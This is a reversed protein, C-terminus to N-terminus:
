EYKRIMSLIAFAIDNDYGNRIGTWASVLGAATMAALFGVGWRVYRNKYAFADRLAAAMLVLALLDDTRIGAASYMRNVDMLNIKPIFLCTFALPVIAPIGKKREALFYRLWYVALLIGSPILISIM